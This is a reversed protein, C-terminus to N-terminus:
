LRMWKFEIYVAIAFVAVPGWGAIFPNLYGNQGMSTFISILWWFAFAIALSMIINVIKSKRRTSIAFPMGLLCMIVTAFPTALKSQRVTQATYHALGSQEYFNIKTTLDRISLLKDEAKSVAMHQPATTFPAEQEDFSVETTDMDNLFTREIGNIFVWHQTQENWKMQQAIIQTAINWQNNYTDLSVHEMLGKTPDVRKAFLMQNHSIKIVVDTEENPNFNSNLYYDNFRHRPIYVDNRNNDEGQGVLKHRVPINQAQMYNVNNTWEVEKISKSFTQLDESSIMTRGIYGQIFPRPGQNQNQNNGYNQQQNYMNPNYNYNNQYPGHPQNYNNNLQQYINQGPPRYMNNNNNQNQYFGGRNNNNYM